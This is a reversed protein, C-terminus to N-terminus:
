KMTMEDERRVGTKALAVGPLSNRRGKFKKTRCRRRGTIAAVDESALRGQEAM